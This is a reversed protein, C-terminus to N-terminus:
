LPDAHTYEIVDDNMNELTPLSIQRGSLIHKNLNPWYICINTIAVSVFRSIILFVFLWWFMLRTAKLTLM